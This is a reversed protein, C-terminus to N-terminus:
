NGGAATKNGFVNKKECFDSFWKENQRVNGYVVIKSQLIDINIDTTGAFDFGSLPQGDLTVNGVQDRWAWTMDESVRYKGIPLRLETEGKGEKVALPVSFPEGDAAGNDDIKQVNVIITEDTKFENYTKRVILRGYLKHVAVGSDDTLVSGEGANVYTQNGEENVEGAMYVNTRVGKLGSVKMESVNHQGSIEKIVIKIEPQTYEKTFVANLERTGDAGKGVSYVMGDYPVNKSDLFAATYGVPYLNVSQTIPRDKFDAWNVYSQTEEDWLRWEVFKMSIKLDEQVQKIKEQILVFAEVDIPTEKNPDEPDKQVFSRREDATTKATYIINGNFDYYNIDLAEAYVATYTVANEQLLEQEAIRYSKEETVLTGLVEDSQYGTYWGKFAYGKYDKAVLSFTNKNNEVYRVAAPDEGNGTIVQDINSNVGASIGVFVPWLDMSHEVTMKSTVLPLPMKDYEAKSSSYHYWGNGAEPMKETWGIMYANKLHGETMKDYNVEPMMGLAQGVNRTEVRTSDADKQGDLHYVVFAPNYIATFTYSKGAEVKMKFTYETEEKNLSGQQWLDVSTGDPLTCKFGVLVYKADEGDRVPNVNTQAKLTVEAVGQQDYGGESGSSENLTITYEPKNPYNVGEPLTEMQHINTTTTLNYKVYVPYLEMTETVVADDKILYPLAKDADSTCYQDQEVDYIDNWEAGGKIIGGKEKSDSTRAQIWGLFEYRNDVNGELDKIQMEEKSPSAGRVLSYSDGIPENSYPYTYGAYTDGSEKFVPDGYRRSVTTLQGSDEGSEPKHHFNLDAAFHGEIRYRFETPYWGRWWSLDASTWKHTKEDNREEAWFIFKYGPNVVANVALNSGQASGTMSLEAANPFDSILAIRYFGSGKWHAYISVPNEIKYDKEIEDAGDACEGNDKSKLSWHTFDHDHDKPLLTKAYTGNFVTKYPVWEEYFKWYQYKGGVEENDKTNIYYETRYEFRATYTVEKSVDPVYYKQERSVLVETSESQGATGIQQYWGLFRYGEPFAGKEGFGIVDIYVGSDDVGVGTKGVGDRQTELPNDDKDHGEFVTKVNTIYSTFIPYLDMTKEVPDGAHYVVGKNLLEELKGSTISSYGGSGEEENRQTTWGYFVAGEPTQKPVVDALKERYTYYKVDDTLITGDLDHFVIRAKLCAVYLDKDIENNGFTIEYTKEKSQAVAGDAHTIAELETMDSVYDKGVNKQKFWGNFQYEEINDEPNSDTPVVNLRVSTDGRPHIGQIAFQYSDDTSVRTNVLATSDISVAGAGPFDFAASVNSGHVPIGLDYDMVWKNIHGENGAKGEFDYMHDKWFERGAYTADDKASYELTDDRDAVACIKAEPNSESRKYYSDTVTANKGCINSIGSIHVDTEIIPIVIIANYQKSHIKGAYHCREIHSNGRLAGTIGGAYGAIGSGVSVYNAAYFSVDATCFCDVIRTEGDDTNVGGVIGGAYVSKGGLAGVAIDYENRIVSDRYEQSEGIYNSRVRSYEITSDEAWGVLGGMYLGEGGVGTVGATSNNVVETGSIECNYMVSDEMIGAIGGGCFGLNTILSVINNAPSLKIKSNLITLNELYTNKAHGVIIGGQYVAEIDSNELTLNKITAGETFSFLGSNPDKIIGPEYVLGKIKHNQGDFTGRFPCDKTGVTLHTVKYKELTKKVQEETLDLDANLVVTTGAYDFGQSAAAFIFFDDFSNIERIKNEKEQKGADKTEQANAPFSFLMPMVLSLVLVISLIAQLCKKKQRLSKRM